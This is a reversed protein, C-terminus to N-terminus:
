STAEVIKIGPYAFITLIKIGIPMEPDHLDRKLQEFSYETKKKSLMQWKYAPEIVAIWLLVSYILFSVLSTKIFFERLPSIKKTKM